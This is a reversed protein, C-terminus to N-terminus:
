CGYEMHFVFTDRVLTCDPCTDWQSDGTNRAKYADCAKRTAVDNYVMDGAVMNICVASSHLDAVAFSAMAFAILTSTFRM